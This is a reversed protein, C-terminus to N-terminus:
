YSIFYFLFVLIYTYFTVCVNPPTLYTVSVYLFLWSCTRVTACANPTLCCRDFLFYKLSSPCMSFRLPIEHNFYAAATLLSRKITESPRYLLSSLKPMSRTVSISLLSSSKPTSRILSVSLLSSSTPTSRILSMSSTYLNNLVSSYIAWSSSTLNNQHLNRVMEGIYVNVAQTNQHPETRWSSSLFLQVM